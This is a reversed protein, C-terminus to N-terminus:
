PQQAVLSYNPFLPKDLRIHGDLTDKETGDILIFVRKVDKYNYTLSNVVAFVTAIEAESGSLQNASLERSFDVYAIGERTFYVQRVTTEPPLTSIYGVRSGRILEELVRGAEQAPTPGAEIEREEPHLLSDNESAFFLVVKKKQLDAAAPTPPAMEKLSSSPPMASEERGGLFFAVALVVIVIFLAALATVQTRDLPQKM